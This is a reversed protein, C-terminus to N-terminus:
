LLSKMSLFLSSKRFLISGLTDRLDLSHVIILSVKIQESCIRHEWLRRRETPRPWKPRWLYDSILIVLIKFWQFKLWNIKGDILVSTECIFNWDFNLQWCNFDRSFTPSSYYHTTSNCLDAACNELSAYFSSGKAESKNVFCLLCQSPFILVKFCHSSYVYNCFM